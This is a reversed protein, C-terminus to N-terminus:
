LTISNITGGCYHHINEKVQGGEILRYGDDELESFAMFYVDLGM